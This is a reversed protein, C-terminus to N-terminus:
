LGLLSCARNRCEARTAPGQRVAQEVWGMFWWLLLLATGTAGALVALILWLEYPLM